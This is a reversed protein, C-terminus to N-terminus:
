RSAAVLRLHRERRPGGDLFGLTLQDQHRQRVGAVVLRAGCLDETDAQLRQVVFEIAEAETRRPLLARSMRSPGRETRRPMLALCTRPTEVITPATTMPSLRICSARRACTRRSSLRARASSSALAM